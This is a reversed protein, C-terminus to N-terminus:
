DDFRHREHPPTGPAPPPQMLLNEIRGDERMIEWSPSSGDDLSGCAVCVCDVARRVRNSFPKGKKVERALQPYGYLKLVQRAADHDGALAAICCARLEPSPAYAM